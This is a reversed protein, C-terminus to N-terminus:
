TETPQEWLELVERAPLFVDRGDRHLWLREEEVVGVLIVDDIRSRDILAVNVHRGQLSRVEDMTM